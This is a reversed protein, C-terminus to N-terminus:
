EIMGGQVSIGLVTGTCMMVPFCALLILTLIWGWYFAFLYGLVFSAVSMIINGFKEGIARQVAATEKSIRASMETPNNQDYYDADKEICKEFYKIKLKFAVREAFLALFAIQLCSTLWVFLSFYMMYLASDKLSSFGDSGQTTAGMKDIMDGFFLCFGPLAGGFGFSAAAGCYYYILDTKDAYRFLIDNVSIMETGTFEANEDKQQDPEYAAVKDEILKRYDHMDDEKKREGSGSAHKPSLTDREMLKRNSDEFGINRNSHPTEVEADPAQSM